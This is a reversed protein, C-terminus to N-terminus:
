TKNISMLTLTKTQTLATKQLVISHPSYKAIVGFSTIKLLISNSNTILARKREIKQSVAQAVSLKNQGSHFKLFQYKKMFKLVKM